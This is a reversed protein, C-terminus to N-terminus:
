LMHDLFERTRPDKPADCFDEPASHEVLMGKDAFYVHRAVDRAFRMEHIVGTCTM